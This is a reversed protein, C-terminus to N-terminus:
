KKKAVEDAFVGRFARNVARTIQDFASPFVSCLTALNDLSFPLPNGDEGNVDEWGVVVAAVRDRVRSSQSDSANGFAAAWDHGSDTLFDGYTPTQMLLTFSNEADLTILAKGSPRGSKVAVTM